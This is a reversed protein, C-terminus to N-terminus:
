DSALGDKRLLDKVCHDHPRQTNHPILKRKWFTDGVCPYTAWANSVRGGSSIAIENSKFTNHVGGANMRLWSWVRSTNTNVRSALLNEEGSRTGIKEWESSESKAKKVRQQTNNRESNELETDRVYKRKRHKTSRRKKVTWKDLIAAGERRCSTYQVVNKRRQWPTKWFNKRSKKMGDSKKTTDREREERCSTYKIVKGM